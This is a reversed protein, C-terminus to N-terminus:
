RDESSLTRAECSEDYTKVGDGCTALDCADGVGDGDGDLQEPNAAGVCDNVHDPVGDQDTDPSAAVTVGDDGSKDCPIGALCDDNTLCTRHERKCVGDACFEGSGCGCPNLVRSTTPPVRAVTRERADRLM